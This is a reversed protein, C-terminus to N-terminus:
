GPVERKVPKSFEVSGLFVLSWSKSLLINGQLHIEVLVSPLEGMVFIALGLPLCPYISAPPDYSPNACPRGSVGPIVIPKRTIEHQAGQSAFLGIGWGHQCIKNIFQRSTPVYM